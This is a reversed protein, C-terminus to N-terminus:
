AREKWQRGKPAGPFSGRDFVCSGRIWTQLVKGYLEQGEYPTLRHRHLVGEAQVRVSADSDWVVFDASMGPAISGKARALGGFRAVRGSMWDSLQRISLGRKRMETWIVPFSFQIGSIGGWAPEFEGKELRKLQPACPSHDSVIFDIVGEHLGQWLRERNSHERIPPACKFQTAGDHIRESEFFLYHPCTEVTIPVGENRARAIAPLADAASLHVIHVRCGTERSLRIMLEIASTEWSQPRSELYDQYKKSAAKGPPVCGDDLEAHVLLPVGLRALVPMAKRLDEERCMPFEDVGSEILFTKFGLAGARVM